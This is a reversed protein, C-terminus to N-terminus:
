SPVVLARLERAYGRHVGAENLHPNRYRPRVMRASEECLQALREARRILEELRQRHVRVTEPM